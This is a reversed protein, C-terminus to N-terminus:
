RKGAARARALLSGGPGKHRKSRQRPTGGLGPRGAARWAGYSRLWASLQSAEWRLSRQRGTGVDVPAGPWDQGVEISEAYLRDLTDRSIGLRKAADGTSLWEPADGVAAQLVAVIERVAGADADSVLRQLADRHERTLDM